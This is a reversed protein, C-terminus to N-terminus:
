EANAGAAVVVSHEGGSPLHIPMEAPVASSPQDLTQVIGMSPLAGLCIVGSFGGIQVANRGVALRQGVAGVAAAVEVDVGDGRVAGALFHAQGGGLTQVVARISGQPRYM